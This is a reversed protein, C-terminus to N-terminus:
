LFLIGPKTFVFDFCEICVRIKRHVLECGMVYNGIETQKSIVHAFFATM